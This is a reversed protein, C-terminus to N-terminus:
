RNEAIQEGAAKFLPGIAEGYQQVSIRILRQQYTLWIPGKSAPGLAAQPVSFSLFFLFIFPRHNAPPPCHQRKKVLPHQILCNRGVVIVVPSTSSVIHLLKNNDNEDFYRKAPSNIERNPQQITSKSLLEM